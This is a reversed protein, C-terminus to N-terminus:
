KSLTRRSRYYDTPTNSSQNENFNPCIVLVYTISKCLLWVKWHLSVKAMLCIFNAVSTLPKENDNDIDLLYKLLKKLENTFINIM